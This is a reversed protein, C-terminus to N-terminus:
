PTDDVLNIKGASPAAAPWGTGIRRINNALALPTSANSTMTRVRRYFSTLRVVDARHAGHYRRPRWGFASRLPPPVRVPGTREAPVVM